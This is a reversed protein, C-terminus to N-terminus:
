AIWIIWTNGAAPPAAPPHWFNENWFSAAWFSHAWM